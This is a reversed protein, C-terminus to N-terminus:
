LSQFSLQCNMDYRRPGLGQADRLPPHLPSLWNQNMKLLRKTRALTFRNRFETISHNTCAGITTSGSPKPSQTCLMRRPASSAAWDTNRNSSAMSGNQWHM